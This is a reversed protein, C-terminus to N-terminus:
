RKISLSTGTVRVVRGDNTLEVAEGAMWGGRDVDVSQTGGGGPDMRLLLRYLNPDPKLKSGAPPPLPNRNAGSLVGVTEIVGSGAKFNTPAIINAELQAPDWSYTCGAAALVLLLASIRM